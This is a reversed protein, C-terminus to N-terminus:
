QLLRGKDDIFRRRIEPALFLWPRKVCVEGITDIDMRDKLISSKRARFFMLVLLFLHLDTAMLIRSTVISTDTRVVSRVLLPETQEGAYRLPESKLKKLQSRPPSCLEAFRYLPQLSIIYSKGGFICVKWLSVEVQDFDGPPYMSKFGVSKKELFTGSENNERPDLSVLETSYLHALFTFDDFEPRICVKSICEM